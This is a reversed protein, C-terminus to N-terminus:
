SVERAPKLCDSFALIILLLLWLRVDQSYEEGAFTFYFPLPLFFLISAFLEKYPLNRLRKSVLAWAFTLSTGWASLLVVLTKIKERIDRNWWKTGDWSWEDFIDTFWMVYIREAVRVVTTFRHTWMYHRAQDVRERLFEAEGLKQYARFETGLQAPHQTRATERPTANPNNGEYLSYDGVSRLPIFRHFERADHVFWPLVILFALTGGLAAHAVTRRRDLRASLVSILLAVAFIPMPTVNILALLGSVIAFPAVTKASPRDIWRMALLVMLATGLEQWAYYWLSTLQFISEPWFTFGAAVLVSTTRSCGTGKSCVHRAVLWFTMVSLASIIANIYVLVRVTFGSAGHVVHMVVAWLFPIFPCVWATPADGNSFPSSFGRGEYLNVAVHGMEGQQFPHVRSWPEPSHVVQMTFYGVRIALAAAFILLAWVATWREPDQRPSADASNPEPNSLEKGDASKAKNLM